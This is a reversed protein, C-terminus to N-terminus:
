KKKNKIEENSNDFYIHYYEKEEDPINIFAKNYKDEVLKLEIEVSSYM